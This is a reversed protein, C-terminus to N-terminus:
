ATREFPVTGGILKVNEYNNFDPPLNKKFSFTRVIDILVLDKSRIM